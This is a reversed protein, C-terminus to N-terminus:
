MRVIPLSQLRVSIESNKQFIVGNKFFRFDYIAYIRISSLDIYHIYMYVVFGIVM